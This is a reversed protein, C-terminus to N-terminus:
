RHDTKVEIRGPREDVLIQVSALESADGRTRKVAEISVDDGSGGTMTINGAINAVTFRGDRALKLKRSFRETREPGRERGQRRAPPAEIRVRGTVVERVRERVVVKPDPDYPDQAAAPITAAMLGAFVLLTTPRAMDLRGKTQSRLRRAGGRRREGQA